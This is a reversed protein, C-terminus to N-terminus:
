EESRPIGRELAVAVAAQESRPSNTTVVMNPKIEDIIRELVTVQFFAQTNHREFLCMAVSEGLRHVLDWYSLGFYAIAEVREIGSEPIHFREAFHQGYLRAFRDDQSIFDKYGLYPIGESQFIPGASTCALVEARIGICTRLERLVPIIMRAHGGGYTVFLITKEM